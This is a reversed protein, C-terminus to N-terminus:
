HKKKGKMFYRMIIVFFEWLMWDWCPFERFINRPISDTGCLVTISKFLTIDLKDYQQVSSLFFWRNTVSSGTSNSFCGTSTPSKLLIVSGKLPISLICRLIFLAFDSSTLMHGTPQLFWESRSRYHVFFKGPLTTSYTLGQYISHRNERSGFRTM